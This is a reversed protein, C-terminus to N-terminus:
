AIDRFITESDVDRGLESLDSGSIRPESDHSIKSWHPQATRSGLSVSFPFKACSPSGTARSIEAYFGGLTVTADTIWSLQFADRIQLRQPKTISFNKGHSIQWRRNSEVNPIATLFLSDCCAEYSVSVINVRFEDSVEESHATHFNLHCM